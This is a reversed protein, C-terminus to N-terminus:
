RSFVMTKVDCETRLYVKIKIFGKMQTVSAGFM